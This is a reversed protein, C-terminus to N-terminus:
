FYIVQGRRTRPLLIQQKNNQPSFNFYSDLKLAPVRDARARGVPSDGRGVEMLRGEEEKWVVESRKKQKEL